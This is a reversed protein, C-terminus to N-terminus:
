PRRRRGGRRRRRSTKFRGHSEDFEVAVAVVIEDELRRLEFADAKTEAAELAEACVLREYLEDPADAVTVQYVPVEVWFRSGKDTESEFGVTGQMLEALRKSIALGIGTGQIPGTEQGARHFPEFIKARKDEPIGIGDDAVTIRLRERDHTVSFRVHGGARNYKIANSGYNMLIQALRTRDAIVIPLAQLPVLEVTVGSRQAMPELTTIVEQLVDPITVPEASITVGGAEIRSRDLV